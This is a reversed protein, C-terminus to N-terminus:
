KKVTMKFIEYAGLPVSNKEMIFEFDVLKGIVDADGGTLVVNIKSSLREKLEKIFDNCVGAIGNQVGSRICETTSRGIFYGPVETKLEPLLATNKALAEYQLRIGPLIMGGEFESRGNIIEFTVASGFDIVVANRKFNKIAYAVNCLRDTGLEKINIYRSKLKNYHQHGVVFPEKGILKKVSSSIESTTSPVVSVIIVDQPIAKKLWKSFNKEYVGEQVINSQFIEYIKTSTNGIDIVYQM